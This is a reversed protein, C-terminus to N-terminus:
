IHILSLATGNLSYGSSLLIKANPNIERIRDFTVGGSIGPMIMDLIVLDIKDKKEMYVALGEQGNGAAYVTYGMTELLEKNIEMVTKEDDILLITESGIFIEDIPADEQVVQKGSAPLYITFTTGHGPESYVNIMGGHGKIIGYASALGLGTGKGMGKTTFFPEFIKERTKEDMGTGTDTVTIKVYKGPKMFYPFRQEDNLFANQTELYIDGGGPMAQWANIYLNMFVQEMQGRDVEVIWLDKGPKRQISIEKKTRGFLSSTKELIENMDSPKIQYRGGRAFGLLQRTLDGGSQVQDQIRRLREYNPDNKKLNMLTMSVYGQIGALLNNFDHAIGGALTGISEMKDAQQLREELIRQAEEAKKRATIDQITGIVVPTQGEMVHSLGRVEAWLKKGSTTTLELEEAFPEDTTLTNQIKEKLFPIDAPNYYKMGETLNPHYGAPIELLRYVGETWQLFDTEPNAKWGGMLAIAQTQRLFEESELLKKEAQKRETIDSSTVIAGLFEGTTDFFSHGTSRLWVYHGDAHQHRYEVATDTKARVGEVYAAVVRDRDESHVLNFVSTGLIDKPDYGLIRRYSPSTYKYLAQDDLDSVIDRMNEAMRRYREESERLKEEARKRERIDRAEGLISMPRGSEDRIISFKNETLLLSGDKCYYELEVARVPNYGSGGEVKPLEEALLQSVLKLSEPTIHQDLPMEMIEHETYGRLKGVSPSFYIVKLNMDMLWVSDTTHESLLRYQAESQRLAELATEREAEMQKRETINRSTFIAGQLNGQDDDIISGICEMPYYEGNAHRYRFEITEDSRNTFVGKNLREIVRPKDDPHVMDLPSRGILDEIEHGWLVKHSPSVYRLIGKSDTISILDLMNAEILALQKTKESLERSIMDQEKGLRELKLIKRHLAKNEKILDESTKEKSKM